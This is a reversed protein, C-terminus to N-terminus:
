GTCLRRARGSRRPLSASESAAPRIAAHGCVDRRDNSGADADWDPRAQREIAAVRGDVAQRQVESLRAVCRPHAKEGGGGAVRRVAQHACVNSKRLEVDAQRVQTQKGHRINLVDAAVQQALVDDPDAAAAHGVQQRHPARVPEVADQVLAPLGADDQATHRGARQAPVHAAGGVGEAQLQLGIM